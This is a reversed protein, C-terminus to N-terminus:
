KLVKKIKTMIGQEKSKRKMMEQLRGREIAKEYVKIEKRAIELEDKQSVTEEVEFKVKKYEEDSLNSLLKLYKYMEKENNFLYGNKGVEIQDKNVEDVRQLVPLGMAMAELMSISNMESLSSTLYIKSMM